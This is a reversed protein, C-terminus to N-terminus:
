GPIKNKLGALFFDHLTLQLRKKRSVAEVIRGKFLAKLISRCKINTLNRLAAVSHEKSLPCDEANLFYRNLEYRKAEIEFDQQELVIQQGEHERWYFLGPPMWVTNNGQAIRLWLETDGVFQKGSFGHLAEFLERRIITGTPGIGLVLNKFYYMKYANVPSLLLPYKMDYSVNATLGLAASPNNEMCHVMVQLGWPFIIDDSDLYKLYKGTAFGAARNRNNYDGINEENVYVKVRGDKLEYERAIEVTRDKSADDLIILEFNTYFSALVSEINERIYMDRNCATVLVSVLPANEGLIM